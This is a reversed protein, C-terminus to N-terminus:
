QQVGQPVNQGEQDEIDCRELEIYATMYNKQVAASAIIRPTFSNDYQGLRNWKVRTTFEGRRGLSQVPQTFGYTNGGDASVSLVANNELTVSTDSTFSVDPPPPPEIAPATFGFTRLPSNFGSDALLVFDNDEFALFDVVFSSATDVVEDSLEWTLGDESYAVRDNALGVIFIGNGFAIGNVSVGAFPLGSLLTWAIGDPSTAIQGDQSVVYFLGDAFIVDLLTVAGFGADRQTWTIGDTSTEIGGQEGVVIFLDNDFTAARAETGM